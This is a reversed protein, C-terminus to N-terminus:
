GVPNVTNVRHKEVREASDASQQPPNVKRKESKVENEGAPLM